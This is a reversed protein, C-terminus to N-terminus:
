ISSGFVVQLSIFCNQKRMLRLCQIVDLVMKDHIYPTMLINYITPPSNKHPVWTDMIVQFVFSTLHYKTIKDSHCIYFNVLPYCCFLVWSYVIVLM